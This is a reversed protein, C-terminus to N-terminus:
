IGSYNDAFFYKSDLTRWFKCITNELDNKSEEQSISESIEFNKLNEIADALIQQLNNLKNLYEERKWDEVKEGNTMIVDIIAHIEEVEEYASQMYTDKSMPEPQFLM